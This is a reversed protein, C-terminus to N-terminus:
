HNRNQLERLLAKYHMEEMDLIDIMLEKKEFYERKKLCIFMAYFQIM